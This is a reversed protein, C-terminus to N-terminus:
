FEDQSSCDPFFSSESLTLSKHEAHADKQAKSMNLFSLYRIQENMYHVKNRSIPECVSTTLNQFSTSQSLPEMTYQQFEESSLDKMSKSCCKCDNEEIKPRLQSELMKMREELKSLREDSDDMANVTRSYNSTPWSVRNNYTENNNSDFNRRWTPQTYDPESFDQCRTLYPGSRKQCRAMYHETPTSPTMYSAVLSTLTPTPPPSPVTRTSYPNSPQVNIQVTHPSVFATPLVTEKAGSSPTSLPPRLFKPNSSLIPTATLIQPVAGVAREQVVFKPNQNKQFVPKIISCRAAVTTANNELKQSM